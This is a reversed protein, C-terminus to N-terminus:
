DLWVSGTERLDALRNAKLLRDSLTYLTDEIFLARKAQGAQKEPADPSYGAAPAHTITGKLMLGSEPTVHFVYFGQWPLFSPMKEPVAGGTEPSPPVARVGSMIRYVPGLTVPIVLLGGPRSFLVAKHDSLAPSWANAGPIVYKAEEVPKEPDSVDFLAIKIGQDVPPPPWILARAEAPAPQPLPRIGDAVERGIGLLHNEDVPHLYASYGPIKLEGLMKPQRPDKLDIVFLPDTRRFTVGSARHGALRAAYITEGPALGQLSGA